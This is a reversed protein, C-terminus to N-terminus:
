QLSDSVELLRDKIGTLIEVVDVRRDVGSKNDKLRKSAGELTMGREKVLYYILRFNALDDATFLRNGKKNRAPKIYEPFKQAWFRVLSTNENLIEAVEGITYYLKEIKFEKYPM